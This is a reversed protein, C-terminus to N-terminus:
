SYIMSPATEQVISANTKMVMMMGDDDITLRCIMVMAMVNHNQNRGRKTGTSHVDITRIMAM